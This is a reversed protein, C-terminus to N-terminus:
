ANSSCTSQGGQLRVRFLLEGFFWLAIVFKLGHVSLKRCPSNLDASVIKAHNMTPRKEFYSGM